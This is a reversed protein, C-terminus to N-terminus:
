DVVMSFPWILGLEIAETPLHSVARYEASRIMETFVDAFRYHALNLRDLM